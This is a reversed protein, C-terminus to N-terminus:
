EPSCVLGYLVGPIGLPGRGERDLWSESLHDIKEAMARARETSDTESHVRALGRGEDLSRRRIQSELAHALANRGDRLAADPQERPDRTPGGAGPVCIRGHQSPINLIWEPFDPRAIGTTEVEAPCALAYVERLERDGRGSPDTGSAMAAIRSNAITGSIEQFTAERGTEGSTRFESAVRVGLHEAALNELASRRAQRIAHGPHLTPGSFGVACGAPPRQLWSVLRAPDPAEGASACALLAGALLPASGQLLRKTARTNGPRKM